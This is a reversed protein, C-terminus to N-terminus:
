RLCSSTICSPVRVWVAARLPGPQTAFSQLEFALYLASALGLARPHCLASRTRQVGSRVSSRCATSGDLTPSLDLLDRLRKFSAPLPHRKFDSSYERHDPVDCFRLSERFRQRWGSFQLDLQRKRIWNMARAPVVASGSTCILCGRDCRHGGCLGVPSPKFFSSTADGCVSCENELSSHYWGKQCVTCLGAWAARLSEHWDRERGRLTGSAVSTSRTRCRPLSIATRLSSLGCRQGRNTWDAGDPCANCVGDLNRYYNQLCRTCDTAGELSDYEPGKDTTCKLCSSQRNTSTNAADATRADSQGPMSAAGWLCATSYCRTRPSAAWAFRALHAGITDAYSGVDCTVCESEGTHLHGRACADCATSSAAQAKGAPCDSRSQGGLGRVDQDVNTVHVKGLRGRLQHLFHIKTATATGAECATRQFSWRYRLLGSLMDFMCRVVRDTCLSRECDVNLPTGCTSVPKARRAATATWPQAQWPLM